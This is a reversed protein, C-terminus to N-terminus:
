RTFKILFWDEIDIYAYLSISAFPAFIYLGTEVLAFASIRSREDLSM